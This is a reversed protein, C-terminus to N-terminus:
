GVEDVRWTYVWSGLFIIRMVAFAQLRLFHVTTKLLVNDSASPIYAYFFPIVANKRFDWKM